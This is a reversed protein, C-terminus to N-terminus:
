FRFINGINTTTIVGGEGDAGDGRRGDAGELYAVLDPQLITRLSMPEEEGGTVRERVSAGERM